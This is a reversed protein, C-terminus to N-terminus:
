RAPASAPERELAPCGDIQISPRRTPLGTDRAFKGSHTEGMTDAAFDLPSISPRLQEGFAPDSSSNPLNNRCRFSIRLAAYANGRQEQGPQPDAFREAQLPGLYIVLAILGM